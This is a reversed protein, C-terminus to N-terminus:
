EGTGEDNYSKPHGPPGSTPSEFRLELIAELAQELGREWRRRAGAMNAACAELFWTIAFGTVGDIQASRLVLEARAAPAAADRLRRCVGRMWREQAGFSARVAAERAVLDIYSGYGVSAEAPDAGMEIPDFAERRRWADCKATFFPSRDGNLSLLASRLVPNIRAEAIGNVGALGARLDVFRAGGQRGNGNADWPVQIVPDGAGLEASWDAEM